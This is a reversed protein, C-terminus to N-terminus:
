VCCVVPRRRRNRRALLAPDWAKGVVDDTVSVVFLLVRMSVRAQRVVVIVVVIGIPLRGQVAAPVAGLRGAEHVLGGVPALVQPVLGGLEPVQDLQDRGGDLLGHQGQEVEDPLDEEVFGM